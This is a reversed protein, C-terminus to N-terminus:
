KKKNWGFASLAGLKKTIDSGLRKMETGTKAFAAKAGKESEPKAVACQLITTSACCHYRLITLPVQLWMSCARPRAAVTHHRRIVGVKGLVLLPLAGCRSGVRVRVDSLHRHAARRRCCCRSGVVVVCACRLLLLLQQEREGFFAAAAAAYIQVRFPRTYLLGALTEGGLLARLQDKAEHTALCGRLGKSLVATYVLSDQGGHIVQLQLSPKVTGEVDIPTTSVLIRQVKESLTSQVPNSPSAAGAKAVIEEMAKVLPVVVQLSGGRCLLEATAKRAAGPPMAPPFINAWDMEIQVGAGTVAQVRENLLPLNQSLFHEVMQREGVRFHEELFALVQM